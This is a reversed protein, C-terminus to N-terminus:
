GMLSQQVLNPFAIQRDVPPPVIEQHPLVPTSPEREVMLTSLKSKIAFGKWRRGGGLLGVDSRIGIPHGMEGQDVVVVDSVIICQFSLEVVALIPVQGCDLPKDTLLQLPSRATRQGLQLPDFSHAVQFPLVPFQPQLLHASRFAVRYPVMEGCCRGTSKGGRFREMQGTIEDVVDCRDLVKVSRDLLLQEFLEVIIEIGSDTQDSVCQPLPLPSSGTLAITERGGVGTWLLFRPFTKTANQRLAMGNRGNEMESEEMEEIKNWKWGNNRYEEYTSTHSYYVIYDSRIVEKEFTTDLKM